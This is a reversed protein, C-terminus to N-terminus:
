NFYIVAQKKYTTKYTKLFPQRTKLFSSIEIRTWCDKSKIEIAMFDM